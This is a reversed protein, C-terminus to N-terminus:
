EQGEESELDALQQELREISSRGAPKGGLAKIKDRLDREYEGGDVGYDTEDLQIAKANELSTYWGDELFKVRDSPNIAKITYEFGDSDKWEGGQKFVHLM